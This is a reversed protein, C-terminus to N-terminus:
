FTEAATWYSIIVTNNLFVTPINPMKDSLVTKIVTPSYWPAHISLGSAQLKEKNLISPTELNSGQVLESPSKLVMSGTEAEPWALLKWGRREVIVEPSLFLSTEAPNVDFSFSFLLPLANAPRSSSEHFWKLSQGAFMALLTLTHGM